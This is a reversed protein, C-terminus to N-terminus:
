VLSKGFYKSAASAALKDFEKKVILGAINMVHSEVLRKIDEASLESPPKPFVGGETIALGASQSKCCESEPAPTGEVEANENM